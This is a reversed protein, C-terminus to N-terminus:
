SLWTTNPIKEVMKGQDGNKQSDYLQDNRNDVYYKTNPIKEDM